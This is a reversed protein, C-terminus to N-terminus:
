SWTEVRTDIRRDSAPAGARLSVSWGMSLCRGQQYGWMDGRSAAASVGTVVARLLTLSGPVFM